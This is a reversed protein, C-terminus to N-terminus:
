LIKNELFLGDFSKFADCPKFKYIKKARAIDLIRLNNKDIRNEVLSKSQMLFKLREVIEGLSYSPEIALNVADWPQIPSWVKVFSFIDRVSVLFNFPHNSNMLHVTENKKM